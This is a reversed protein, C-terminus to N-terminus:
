APVVTFMTGYAGAPTPIPIEGLRLVVSATANAAVAPLPQLPGDYRVWTTHGASTIGMWLNAAVDIRGTASRFDSIDLLPVADHEGENRITFADLSTVNRDGPRLTPFHLSGGAPLAVALKPATVRITFNLQTSAQGHDTATVALIWNGPTTPASVSLNGSHSANGSHLVKGNASLTWSKIDEDGNHDTVNLTLTVTTGAGASTPGQVVLIPAVNAVHGAVGGGQQGPALGPTPAAAMWTGNDLQLSKGKGPAASKAPFGPAQQTSGYGVWDRLTGSPDLLSAADGADNWITKSPSQSFTFGGDQSGNSWVVLRQGPQLTFAPFTFDNTSNAAGVPADRLRWGVLNVAATGRNALEIFERQGQTGDPQPLIEMIRLDGSAQAGAPLPMLLALLLAAAYRM